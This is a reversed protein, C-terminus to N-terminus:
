ARATEEEGRTYERRPSENTSALCHLAVVGADIAVRPEVLCYGLYRKSDIPDYGIRSRLKKRLKSVHSEVVNEEVDEDFLGYISHFIQSKTVRRGHHTALFELIRRERRPLSLVDGDVEPDRGDFYVRMPGVSACGTKKDSRRRIVRARALIERVHVPKRVVDDVGGAFLELTQELSSFDNLAILPASCRARTARACEARDLMEGLLFGEIASLEAKTATAIWEAFESPRFGTLVFGERSFQSAFASAIDARAEIFIFM